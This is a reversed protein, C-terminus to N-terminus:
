FATSFVRATWVSRSQRADEFQASRKSHPANVAAKQPARSLSPSDNETEKFIQAVPNAPVFFRGESGFASPM